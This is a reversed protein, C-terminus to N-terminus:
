EMNKYAKDIEKIEKKLNKNVSSKNFYTIDLDKLGLWESYSEYDEGSKQEFAKVCDSMAGIGGVDEIIGRGEGDLVLPSVEEYVEDDIIEELRIPFTWGDGFDYAFTITDGVKKLCDKIKYNRVDVHKRPQIHKHKIAFEDDSANMDEDFYVQLNLNESPVDFGYIHSANGNFMSIMCSALSLMPTNKKILFTRHIKPEFGELETYLKYVSGKNKQPTEKEGVVNIQCLKMASLATKHSEPTVCACCSADVSIKVEPLKAKLIFANSIVCIGTCLGVLEIEELGNLSAVYDALEM